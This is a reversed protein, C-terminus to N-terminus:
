IKMRKLDFAFQDLICSCPVTEICKVWLACFGLGGKNIHVDSSCLSILLSKKVVYDIRLPGRKDEKLYDSGENVEDINM